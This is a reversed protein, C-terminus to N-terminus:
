QDSTKDGKLSTKPKWEKIWPSSGPFGHQDINVIKGQYAEVPQEGKMPTHGVVVTKVQLRSLWTEIEEQPPPPLKKRTQYNYGWLMRGWVYEDLLERRSKEPLQSIEEMPRLSEKRDPLSHSFFTDNVRVGLILNQRLFSGLEGEMTKKWNDVGGFSQITLDGGQFYWNFFLGLINQQKPELKQQTIYALPNLLFDSDELLDSLERTTILSFVALSDLMMLDHNGWLLYFNSNFNKRNEQYYKVQRYLSVLLRLLRKSGLTWLAPDGELNEGRWDVYDGILVLDLGSIQPNWALTGPILIGHEEMIRILRYYDGHLDGVAIIKRTQNQPNQNEEVLVKDKPTTM